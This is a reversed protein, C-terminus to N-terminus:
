SLECGLMWAERLWTKLRRSFSTMSERRFFLDLLSIALSSCIESLVTLNWTDFMRAFNATCRRVSKIRLQKWSVTAQVVAVDMIESRLLHSILQSKRNGPLNLESQVLH